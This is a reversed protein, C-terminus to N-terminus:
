VVSKRDLLNAFFTVMLIISLMVLSFTTYLSNIKQLIIQQNLRHCKYLKEINMDINAETLYLKSENDLIIYMEDFDINNYDKGGITKLTTIVALCLYIIVIILIIISFLGWDSDLISSLGMTIVSAILTFVFLSSKGKDEISRKRKLDKEVISVLESYMKQQNVYSPYSLEVHSNVLKNYEGDIYNNSQILPIVPFIEYIYKKIIDYFRNNSNNFVLLKVIEFPLNINFKKILPLGNKISKLQIFYYNENNVIIHMCGFYLNLEKLLTICNEEINEPLKIPCYCLKTNDIVYVNDSFIDTTAFAYIEKNIIIVAIDEDITLKEYMLLSENLPCNLDLNDLEVGNNKDFDFIYFDNKHIPNVDSMTKIIPVNFGIKEAIKLQYDIKQSSAIEYPDHLWFVNQLSFLFDVISKFPHNKIFNEFSENQAINQIDFYVSKLHSETLLYCKQNYIVKIENNIKKIKYNTPNDVDLFLYNVNQEELHVKIKGTLEDNTSIIVIQPKLM